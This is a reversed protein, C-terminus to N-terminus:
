SLHYHQQSDLQINFEVVDDMDDFDIRAVIHFNLTLPDSDDIQGAQVRVQSLRPEYRVICQQVAGEIVKRFDSATATADNLDTVGLEPASQCAGPHANLTQNLNQKISLLLDNIRSRRSTGIRQGQIRDFLSASRERRWSLIGAM